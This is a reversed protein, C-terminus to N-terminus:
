LPSTVYCPSLTSCPLLQTTELLFCEPWIYSWSPKWGTIRFGRASSMVWLTTFVQHFALRACFFSRWGGGHRGVLNLNPMTTKNRSMLTTQSLLVSSKRALGVRWATEDSSLHILPIKFKPQCRKWFVFHDGSAITDSSGQHAPETLHNRSKAHYRKAHCYRQLLSPRVSRLVSRVCWELARWVRSIAPLNIRLPSPLRLLLSNLSYKHLNTQNRGKLCSSM